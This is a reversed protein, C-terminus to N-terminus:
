SELMLSFATTLKLVNQNAKKLRNCIVRSINKMVHFGIEPYSNCIEFFEKRGIRGLCCKTVAKVTATRKDDDSFLSMEGFFPHYESSLQIIAKERTDTQVQSTKLTLAQSIEVKGDILLLISKGPAGEQIIVDGSQFFIPQAVQCFNEIQDETLDRFIEFEILMKSNCKKIQHKM